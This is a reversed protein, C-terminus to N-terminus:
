MNMPAMPSPGAPAASPVVSDCAILTTKESTTISRLFDPMLRSRRSRWGWRSVIPRSSRMPTGTAACSPSIWIAKMTMVTMALRRPSSAAAATPMTSFIMLKTNRTGDDISDVTDASQACFM